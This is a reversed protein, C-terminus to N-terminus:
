GRDRGINPAVAKINRLFRKERAPSYYPACTGEYRRVKENKRLQETSVLQSKANCCIDHDRVPGTRLGPASISGPNLPLAVHVRRAVWSNLRRVAAPACFADTLENTLRHARAVITASFAPSGPVSPSAGSRHHYPRRPECFAAACMGASSRYSRGIQRCAARSSSARSM